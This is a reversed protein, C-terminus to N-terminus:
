VCGPPLSAESVEGPSGWSLGVRKILQEELRGHAAQGAMVEGVIWAGNRAEPAEIVRKVARCGGGADQQGPERARTHEHLQAGRLM